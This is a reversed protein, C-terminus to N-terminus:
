GSKAAVFPEIMQEIRDMRQPIDGSPREEALWM